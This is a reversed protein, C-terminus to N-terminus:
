IALFLLELNTGSLIIPKMGDINSKEKKLRDITKPFFKELLTIISNALELIRTHSRFNM